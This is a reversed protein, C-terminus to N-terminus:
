GLMEELVVDDIDSGNNLYVMIARNIVNWMLAYREDSANRGITADELVQALSIDESTKLRTDIASRLGELKAALGDSETQDLRKVINDLKTVIDQLIGAMESYNPENGSFVKGELWGALLRFGAEFAIRGIIAPVGGAVGSIALSTIGSVIDPFSPLPVAPLGRSIRDEMEPTYEPPSLPLNDFFTDLEGWFTDLSTDLTSYDSTEGIALVISDTNAQYLMRRLDHALKEQNALPNASDYPLDASPDTGLITIYKM